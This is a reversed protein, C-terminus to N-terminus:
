DNNYDKVMQKVLLFANHAAMIEFEETLTETGGDANDSISRIVVFPINNLTAVHAIAAGEMEACDACFTERLDQKDEDSAVFLDGTVIKGDYVKVDLGAEKIAQRAISRLKDDAKFEKGLRPIEGREYGWSVANMDHQVLETSIVVDFFKIDDNLSGAVGTNIIAEVDYKDILIQTCVAANVKGVGCKAVVIDKGELTGKHFTTGAIDSKEVNEMLEQLDKVESELAGIIGIM